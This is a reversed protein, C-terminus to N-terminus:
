AIGTGQQHEEETRGGVLIDDLYGTACVLGALMADMLQQFAGPAAKIGSSVPYVSIPRSTHQQHSATPQSRGSTGCKSRDFIGCLDLCNWETKASRCHTGSLGFFRGEKHDWLKEVSKTRKRRSYAVPREPRFMPKPNEKLMLQVPTKNCLGMRHTFVNPFWDQLEAIGQTKSTNIHNFFSTIPQNWLNFLDIGLINLNVNTAAVFFKGEKTVNNITINCQLKSVLKLPEGSATKTRCFTSNVLPRGIWIWSM